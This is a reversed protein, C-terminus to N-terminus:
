GWGHAQISTIIDPLGDGNVDYAYMQAGGQGFKVPHFTWEPDGELSKPQEYWGRAEIFDMKGDGNVDGIGLGHTFRQYDKKPSIAHFTWPKTPDGPDPTAYGLQADGICVLEPKDDGVINTLVPSEDNVSAM